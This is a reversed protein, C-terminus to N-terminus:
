RMEIMSSRTIKQYCYLNRQIHTKSQEAKAWLTTTLTTDAHSPLGHINFVALDEM